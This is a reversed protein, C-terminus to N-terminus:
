LLFASVKQQINKKVREWTQKKLSIPAESEEADDFYTLAKPISILLVQEKYKQHYFDICASLSYKNLLESLDWFDKKVARRLIANIKMAIIDEDSLIRIGDINSPEKLLPFKHYRVLDIKVGDIFCFLGIPNNISQYSFSPFNKSLVEAITENNFDKTSFLDLDVSKRHGHKLALATGGVLNFDNLEPIQMLQKVLALTAPEITSIQLM